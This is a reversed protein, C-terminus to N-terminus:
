QIRVPLGQHAGGLPYCSINDLRTRQTAHPTEHSSVHRAVAVLPRQRLDNQRSNTAAQRETSEADHAGAVWRPVRGRSQICWRFGAALLAVYHAEDGEWVYVAVGAMRWVQRGMRFLPKNSCGTSSRALRTPTRTREGSNSPCPTWREQLNADHATCVGPERQSGGATADYVILSRSLTTTFTTPRSSAM